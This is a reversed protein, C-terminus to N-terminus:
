RIPRWGINYLASEYIDLAEKLANRCSKKM